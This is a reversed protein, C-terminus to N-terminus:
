YWDPDSGGVREGPAIYRMENGVRIYPRMVGDDGLQWIMASPDPQPQSARPTPDPASGACGAAWLCAVVTLPARM